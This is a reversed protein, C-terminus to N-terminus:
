LKNFYEIIKKGRRFFYTSEFLKFQTEDMYEYLYNKIEEYLDIFKVLHEKQINVMLAFEM